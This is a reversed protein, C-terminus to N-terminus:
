GRPSPIGPRQRDNRSSRKTSPSATSAWKEASLPGGGKEQRRASSGRPRSATGLPSVERRIEQDACRPLQPQAGPEELEGVAGPLARGARDGELHHAWLPSPGAALAAAWGRQGPDPQLPWRSRAGTASPASAAGSSSTKPLGAGLGRRARPGGGGQPGGRRGQPGPLSLGPGHDAARRQRNGPARELGAEIHARAEEVRDYDRELISAGLYIEASAEYRAFGIDRAIALARAAGADRSRLPRRRVLPDRARGRPPRARATEARPPWSWRKRSSRTPTRTRSSRRSCWGWRAPGASETERSGALRPWSSQRAFVPWLRPGPTARPM